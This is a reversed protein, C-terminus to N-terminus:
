TRPSPASRAARSSSPQRGGSARPAAPRPAAPSRPPDSGDFRVRAAARVLARLAARPMPLGPRLEIHRKSLGEGALLRKPDPLRIGHIFGLRVVDRRVELQCVAGKVRGGVAPQHYSLCSWVVTEAAGPVTNRVLRRLERVLPALADPVRDLFARVETDSTM